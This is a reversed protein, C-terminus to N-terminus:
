MFHVEPTLNWPPLVRTASVTLWYDHKIVVKSFLFFM